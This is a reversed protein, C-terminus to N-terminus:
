PFRSILDAHGLEQLLSPLKPHTSTEHINRLVWRLLDEMEASSANLCALDEMDRRQDRDLAASLKLLILGKRGIFSIKLSNGYERTDLEQWFWSPLLSLDIGHLSAAGNLWDRDLRLEEAVQTAAQKVADPLPYASVINGEWERLAMVDVDKTQRSSLRQVLLASGGGVVLWVPASKGSTLFEDLLEFATILNEENM